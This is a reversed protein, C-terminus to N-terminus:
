DMGLIKRCAKDNKPSGTGHPLGLANCCQTCRDVGMRSFMGPIWALGDKPKRGCAYTVDEFRWDWPNPEASRVGHLRREGRGGCVWDFRAYGMLTDADDTTTETTM